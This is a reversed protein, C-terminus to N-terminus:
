KRDKRNQLFMWRITEPQYAAMWAAHGYGQLEILRAKHEGTESLVNYFARSSSIPVVEDDVSHYIRMPLDLLPEMRDRNVRCGCVPVACALMDPFTYMFQCTNFGGMSTGTLYVRDPDGQEYTVLREIIRRLNTSTPNVPLVAYCEYTDPDQNIMKMLPDFLFDAIVSSNPYQKVFNAEGSGHLQIVIPYKRGKEKHAPQHLQYMQTGDDVLEMFIKRSYDGAQGGQQPLDPYPSSNSSASVDCPQRSCACSLLMVAVCLLLTFRKM